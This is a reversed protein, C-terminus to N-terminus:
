NLPASENFDIRELVCCAESGVEGLMQLFVAEKRQSEFTRGVRQLAAVIRRYMASKFLGVERIDPRQEGEEKAGDALNECEEIVDDLEDFEQFAIM